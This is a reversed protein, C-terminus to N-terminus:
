AAKITEVSQIKEAVTKLKVVGLGIQGDDCAEQLAKVVLPCYRSGVFGNNKGLAVDLQM